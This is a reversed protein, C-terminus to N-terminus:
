GIIEITGTTMKAGDPALTITFADGDDTKGTLGTPTESATVSKDAFEKAFWTKVTAPDAPADFILKVNGAEKGDSKDAVVNLSRIKSAPYLEVGDIDFDANDLMVKPLSVNAKFGPANVTVQGTKGDANIAVDSGNEDKANISVTTGDKGDDKNGCGSLALVLALAPVILLPKM